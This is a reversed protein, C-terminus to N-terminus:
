FFFFFCRSQIQKAMRCKLSELKTPKKEAHQM